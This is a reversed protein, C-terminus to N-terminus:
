RTLGLLQPIDERLVETFRMKYLSTHIEGRYFKLETHNRTADLVKMIDDASTDFGFYIGKLAEIPYNILSGVNDIMRWEREYDWSHFKKTFISIIEKDIADPSVAEKDRFNIKHIKDVYDVKWAHKFPAFQKDFELCIGKQKDGYHGWMIISGKCESFCSLGIGDRVQHRLQRELESHLESFSYRLLLGKDVEEDGYMMRMFADEASPHIVFTFAGEFPDNANYIQGFYLQNNRLNELTYEDVGCYKYLKM